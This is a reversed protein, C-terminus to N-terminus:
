RRLPMLLNKSIWRSRSLSTSSPSNQGLSWLLYSINVSGDRNLIAGTASLPLSETWDDSISRLVNFSRGPKAAAWAAAYRTEDDIAMAGYKAFLHARQSTNDAQDLLGSSYYPVPSVVINAAKAAAMMRENWSQDPMSVLAGQDVVASATVCNGVGLPIGPTTPALGGCLGMSVIRTCDPPVLAPLNMKATGYLVLLDPFVKSLVSYEEPMGALLVVSM